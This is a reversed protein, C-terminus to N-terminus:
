EVQKYGKIDKLKYTAVIVDLINTEKIFSVTNNNEIVKTARVFEGAWDTIWVIWKKM